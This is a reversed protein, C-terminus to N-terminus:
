NKGGDSENDDSDKKDKAGKPQDGLEFKTAAPEGGLTAIKLQYNGAPAFDTDDSCGSDSGRGSWSTEVVTAFEAPVSVEEDLLASDCQTSDWVTNDDSKIVALLDADSPDLVCAQGSQNSVTLTIDIKSGADQGTRVSPTVMIDEAKCTEDDHRLSVEVTGDGNQTPASSPGGTSSRKSKSSPGNSEASSSEAGQPNDSANPPEDNRDSDPWFHVVSWAAAIVFALVILRRRWYVGSPQPRPSM